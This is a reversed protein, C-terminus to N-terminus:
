DANQVEMYKESLTRQKGNKGTWISGKESWDSVTSILIKGTDIEKIKIEKLGNAVLKDYVDKQIAYGKVIRFYHKSRMVEKIFTQNYLWGVLVKGKINDVAYVKELKM